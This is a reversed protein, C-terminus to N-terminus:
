GIPMPVDHVFVQIFLSGSKLVPNPTLTVSLVVPTMVTPTRDTEWSEGSRIEGSIYTM